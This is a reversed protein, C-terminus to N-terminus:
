YHNFSVLSDQNIILELFYRMQMNDYTLIKIKEEITLHKSEEQKKKLHFRQKVLHVIIVSFILLNSPLSKKDFIM